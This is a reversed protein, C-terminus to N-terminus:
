THTADQKFEKKPLRNVLDAIAVGAFLEDFNPILGLVEKNKKNQHLIWSYTGPSDMSIINRLSLAKKFDKLRKNAVLAAIELDNYVNLAKKAHKALASM